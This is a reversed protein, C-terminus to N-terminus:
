DAYWYIMWALQLFHILNEDWPELLPTLTDKLHVLVNWEHLWYYRKGGSCRQKLFMMAAATIGWHLMGGSKRQNVSM